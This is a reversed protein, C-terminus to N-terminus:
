RRNLEDLDIQIFYLENFKKQPKKSYPLLLHNHTLALTHKGQAYKPSPFKKNHIYNMNEDFVLIYTPKDFFSSVYVEDSNEFPIGKTVVVYFRKRYQDFIMNEIKDCVTLREAQSSFSFHNKDEFPVFSRIDITKISDFVGQEKSLVYKSIYPTYDWNLYLEENCLYSLINHFRKKLNDFFLPFYFPSFEGTEINLISIVPRSKYEEYDDLIQFDHNINDPIFGIPAILYPYSYDIRKYLLSYFYFPNYRSFHHKSFKFINSINGNSDHLIIPNGIKGNDPIFFISDKSVVLYDHIYTNSTGQSSGSLRTMFSLSPNTVCSFRIAHQDGFYSTFYLSEGDDFFRNSLSRSYIENEFHIAISDSVVLLDDSFVGNLTENKECSIFLFFPLVLVAM